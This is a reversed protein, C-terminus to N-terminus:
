RSSPISHGSTRLGRHWITCSMSEPQKQMVCFLCTLKPKRLISTGGIADTKVSQRAKRLLKGTYEPAPVGAASGLM